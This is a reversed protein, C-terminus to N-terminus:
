NERALMNGLVFGGRRDEEGCWRAIRGGGNCNLNAALSCPMSEHDFDGRYSVLARLKEQLHSEKPIYVRRAECAGSRAM